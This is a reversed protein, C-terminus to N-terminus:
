VSIKASFEVDILKVIVISAWNHIDYNPFNLVTKNLHKANTYCISGKLSNIFVSTMFILSKSLMIDNLSMRFSRSVSRIHCNERWVEVCLKAFRISTWLIKTNQNTKDRKIIKKIDYMNSIYTVRTKENIFVVRVTKRNKFFRTSKQLHLWLSNDKYFLIM